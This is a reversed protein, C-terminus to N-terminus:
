GDARAAAPALEPAPPQARIPLQPRSVFVMLLSSVAAVVALITFGVEYSGTADYIAGALVPGIVMGTAVVLSSLGMIMGYSARGFYEARMSLIVPGRVGWALGHLVTFGLVMFASSAFTLLLLAAGHGLMCIGILLRSSFRDGLWGGSLQGVITMVTLASIFLAAEGSSYDLLEKVHAVFHVQVASVVLLAAAHAASILWFSRARLAERPTFSVEPAATAVAGAPAGDASAAPPPATDGDPLLGYPEPRHRVLLSAPLGVALVIVGSIISTGRWGVSDLLAAMGPQLLGGFAVGILGIGVAMTRRRVFWNVIATTVSLFGALAAGIAMVVFTVYFTTLSNMRAFAFFGFGFILVGTAMVIRPGFRDLLWGQLPGLLGDEVRALSFAISLRTRSWGFEEELKVVYLGFPHFLLAGVLLQIIFGGVVIWWGYFIRRSRLM